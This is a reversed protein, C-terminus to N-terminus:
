PKTRFWLAGGGDLERLGQVAPMARLPKTLAQLAPDVHNAFFCPLLIEIRDRAGLLYAAVVPLESFLLECMGPPYDWPLPIDHIGIVVGARLQPLVDMAFVAVDSNSYTFHSGDVWVVDGPELRQFLSLDADQLGKSILEDPLAKITDGPYADISIVRCSPIFKNTAFKAFRTSNGSGVEVFCRPRFEKIVGVISVADIVPLLTNKWYPRADNAERPIEALLDTLAAYAALREAIGKRHAEVLELLQPHPPKVGWGYRIKALAPYHYYALRKEDWLQRLKKVMQEAPLSEDFPSYM